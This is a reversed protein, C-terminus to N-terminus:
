AARELAGDVVEALSIYVKRYEWTKIFDHIHWNFYNVGYFHM